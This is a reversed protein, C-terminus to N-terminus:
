RGTLDHNKVVISKRMSKPVVLLKRQEGDIYKNVMLRGGEYEYDRVVDKEEKSQASAAKRLIDIMRRLGLDSQQIMAFQVDETFTM